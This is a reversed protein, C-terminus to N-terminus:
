VGAWRDGGGQGEEPRQAYVLRGASYRGGGEDGEPRQAYVLRGASYRGRGRCQLLPPHARM